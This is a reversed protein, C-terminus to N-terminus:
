GSSPEHVTTMVPFYVKGPTYCGCNKEEQQGQCHRSQEETRLEHLRNEFWKGPGGNDSKDQQYQQNKEKESAKEKLIRFTIQEEKSAGEGSQQDVGPPNRGPEGPRKPEATPAM